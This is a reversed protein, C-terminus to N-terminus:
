FELVSLYPAVFVTCMGSLNSAYSRFFGSLILLARRNAEKYCMKMCKM